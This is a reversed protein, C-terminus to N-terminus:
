EYPAKLLGFLEGGLAIRDTGVTAELWRINGDAAVTQDTLADITEGFEVLSERSREGNLTAYRVTTTEGHVTYGFGAGTLEARTEDLQFEVNATTDFGVHDVLELVGDM